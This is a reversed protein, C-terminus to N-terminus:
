EHKLERIFADIAKGATSQRGAKLKNLTRTRLTEYDPQTSNGLSTKLLESNEQRLRQNETESQQLKEREFRLENSMLWHQTKIELREQNMEDAKQLVEDQYKIRKQLESNEQKTSKVEDEAQQLKTELSEVQRQLETVIKQLQHIEESGSAQLKAPSNHLRDVEESDTVTVTLEDNSHQGTAAEEVPSEVKGISCGRATISWTSGM